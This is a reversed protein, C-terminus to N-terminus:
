KKYLYYLNVICAFIYNLATFVFYVSASVYSPVNVINYLFVASSERIGLGAITIPILSILITLPTILWVYFYNPANGFALFITYVSFAAIGWRIFGLIFNLLIFQPKNKLLYFFTKSFGSFLIAYKRLIYKKIIDRGSNSIIFYLIIVFVLALFILIIMSQREEFLIFIGIVAVASLTIFTTLKDLVFIVAGKGTDLGDKKLFYIFSVEGLKAPVFLGISFSRLHYNLIRWFGMKKDLCYILVKLAITGIALEVFTSFLFLPIYVLNIGKLTIYLEGFGVKYLLFGLIFIGLITKVLLKLMKM